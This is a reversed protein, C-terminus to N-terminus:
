LGTRSETQLADRVRRWAASDGLGAAVAGALTLARRANRRRAAALLL